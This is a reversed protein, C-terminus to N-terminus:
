KNVKFKSLFDKAEQFGTKELEKEFLTEQLEQLKEQNKILVKQLLNVDVSKGYPQSWSITYTVKKEM